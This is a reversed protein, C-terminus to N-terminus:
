KVEVIPCKLKPLIESAQSASVKLTYLRNPTRLKLKVQDGRRVVRCERAKESLALFSEVDFM